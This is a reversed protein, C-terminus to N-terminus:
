TPRCWLTEMRSKILALFSSPPSLQLRATLRACSWDYQWCWCFGVDWVNKCAPHEEQWGILLTLASFAPIIVGWACRPTKWGQIVVLLEQNGQPLNDFRVVGRKHWYLSSFWLLVSTVRVAHIMEVLLPEPDPRIDLTELEFSITQRVDELQM